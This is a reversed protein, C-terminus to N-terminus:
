SVGRQGNKCSMLRDVVERPDLGDSRVSVINWKAGEERELDREKCAKECGNVILIAEFPPDALTVWEIRGTAADRIERWYRVRDYASDCGGCYKLAVRRKGKM